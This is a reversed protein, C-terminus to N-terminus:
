RLVEMIKPFTAAGIEKLGMQVDQRIFQLVTPDDLGVPGLIERMERTELQYAQEEVLHEYSFDVEPNATILIALTEGMDGLPARDFHDLQFFAMIKTGLGEQSDVELHGGCREAAEKLLSLGLGVERTTRTTFFPDTVRSSVSKSMGRGNDKVEIKLLDGSLDEQIKIEVRTSGAVLSNQVIDLIHMSLEIM